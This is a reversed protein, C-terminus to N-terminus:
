RLRQRRVRLCFGPSDSLVAMPASIAASEAELYVTWPAAEAPMTGPAAGIAFLGAILALLGIGIARRPAGRHSYANM